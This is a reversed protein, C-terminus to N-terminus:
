RCCTRAGSYAKGTVSGNEALLGMFSLVLQSKGAGSEGVIALTEGEGVEFDMGNVAKM